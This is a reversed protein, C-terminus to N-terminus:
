RDEGDEDHEEERHEGGHAERGGESREGGEGGEGFQFPIPLGPIRTSGTADFNAAMGGGVWAAIGLLVLGAFPRSGPIADEEPAVKRGDVMGLVIRGGHVVQHLVVGAVHIAVLLAMGNALLPHLEEFAENGTTYAYGTFALGLVLALMAVIGLSSLPTHGTFHRGGPRVLHRLNDSFDSPGHVLASWQAWRTGVFGWVLRVLVLVALTIGIGMHAPFAPSDEGQFRAIAFAVLFGAALLAHFLRVPLDWVLVPRM